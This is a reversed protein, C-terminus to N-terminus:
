LDGVPLDIGALPSGSVRMWTGDEVVVGPVGPPVGAAAWAPPAGGPGAWAGGAPRIWAREAAELRRALWEGLDDPALEGRGDTPVSHPWGPNRRSILDADRARLIATVRDGDLSAEIAIPAGPPSTQVHASGIGVTIQLEGRAAATISAGGGDLDLDTVTVSGPDAPAVYFGSAALGAAAVLITLGVVGWRRNLRPAASLVLILIAAQGLLGLPSLSALRAAPVPHPRARLGAPLRQWDLVEPPETVWAVFEGRGAGDVAVTPLAGLDRATENLIPLPLTFSRRQGAGVDVALRMGGARGADVALAQIPGEVEITALSVRTESARAPPSLGATSAIALIGLVRASGPRAWLEVLGWLLLVAALPPLWLLDTPNALPGEAASLFAFGLPTWPVVGAWPLSAEGPRGAWAASAALLPLGVFLGWFGVSWILHGSRSRSARTAGLAVVLCLGALAAGLALAAPVRDRAGDLSVAAALAPALAGLGFRLPIAPSAASRAPLGLLFLLIGGVAGTARLGTLPLQPDGSGITIVAIWAAVWAVILRSRSM